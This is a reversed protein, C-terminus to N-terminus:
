LETLLNDAQPLATSEQVEPAFCGRSAGSASCSSTCVINASGPMVFASAFHAANADLGPMIAAVTFGTAAYVTVTQRSASPCSTSFRGVPSVM